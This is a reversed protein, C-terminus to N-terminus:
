ASAAFRGRLQQVGTAVAVVTELLRRGIALVLFDRFQRGWGFVVLAQM